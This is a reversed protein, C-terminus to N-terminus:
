RAPEEARRPTAPLRKGFLKWGLLAAIVIGVLAWTLNGAVEAVAQVRDSFAYGVWIYLAADVLEGVFDWITFRLWSYNAIGSAFNIFPGLPTVLWRSFFIGAGGLRRTKEELQAVREKSGLILAFKATLAKGGWRGIAYGIQDGMCSGVTATAIAWWFNMVGQAALSGAVIMLLAVPLPVGVSAVTVVAFLAPLGYLALAALIQENM